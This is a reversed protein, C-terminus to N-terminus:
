RVLLKNYQKKINNAKIFKNQEKRENETFQDFDIHDICFVSYPLTVSEGCIICMERDM